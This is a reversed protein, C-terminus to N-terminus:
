RDYINVIEKNIVGQLMLPYVICSFCSDVIDIRTAHKIIDIYYAVPINVYQNAVHNDDTYMNKNACVVIYSSDVLYKELVPILDIEKNSAKTHAFVIQKDKILEYLERSKDSSPINFYNVYIRTDLGTHEYFYKIFNYKINYKDEQKVYELVKQNTIKSKKNNYVRGTVIVDGKDYLPILAQVEKGDDVTLVSDDGVLLKINHEYRKKCLLYVHDYCEKLFNVMGISTINDGLGLHTLVYVASM